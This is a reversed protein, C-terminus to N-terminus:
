IHYKNHFILKDKLARNQYDMKYDVETSLCQIAAANYSEGYTANINSNRGFINARYNGAIYWAGSLVKE